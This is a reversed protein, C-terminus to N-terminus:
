PSKGLNRVAALNEIGLSALPTSHLGVFRLNPLARLPEFASENVKSGDLHLTKLQPLNKLHVLGPGTISTYKLDLLELRKLARLHSLDDDAIGSYPLVLERLNALHELSKMGNRSQSCYLELVELNPFNTLNKWGEPSFSGNWMQFTRLNILQDLHKLELSYQETGTIRLYEINTLNRLHRLGDDTVPIGTIDLRKLKSLASLHALISEPSHPGSNWDASLEEGPLRLHQLEPFYKLPALDWTEPGLIAISIKGVPDGELYWGRRKVEAMARELEQERVIRQRWRYVPWAGTALIMVVITMEFAGFRRKPQSAM